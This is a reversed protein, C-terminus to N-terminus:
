QITLEVVRCAQGNEATATFVSNTFNVYLLAGGISPNNGSNDDDSIGGITGDGDRDNTSIYEKLAMEIGSDASYLAQTSESNIYYAEYGSAMLSSGIVVFVTLVLLLILSVTLVSGTRRARNTKRISKM